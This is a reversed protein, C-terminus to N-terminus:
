WLSPIRGKRTRPLGLFFDVSIDVWPKSPIPLPIYLGHPQVKSKARLCALCSNCHRDVHKRMHPWYFHEKLVELTKNTGFHGMLGGEHAERILSARLSGQPICLRKGKFLYQNSLYFDKSGGQHCEGYISAFDDDKEYFDKIHDFSLFKTELMSLLTHRRSLADAVVNAKGQKHKIMYPFQELFEVWRAHRKNLKGQRKLFKLAEHDSHIMFEKSLLYHQCTQLTRVLAYLEKDYTSYNLHSGKLKESFYAIPHGEQLLMVGIGVNSADCEIEFTKSFNPLVLLPAKILKEKLTEFAKTQDIGWKFDVGKKVLENLPAVITSFNPVFRRYFSALGHFSRLESVNRPTPWDKIAMVKEQDVHVGHKSIKFGLFIVHDMGFVCKDMNAFLSQKRLTSLVDRLHQFHNERSMSYILIDDFYVVVFKGLYPRLVHHMLRMFTSPANTLGFPMVLWEYLGFKTKFSTKWEDGEKIRIQNYGSKLDIKSFITAGHLEDLLDDLRPIPHRYKITINNIARCDICMRWTGDKKPVLIVPMACPSMSHQVWGKELLDNVQKQIEKAEEPNTRYAPRNPLSSGQIFDIQHEIGRLPPLGKPPDQFVDKFEDLVISL